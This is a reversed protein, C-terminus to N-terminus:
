PNIIKNDREIAWGEIIEHMPLENLLLASVQADFYDSAILFRVYNLSEM